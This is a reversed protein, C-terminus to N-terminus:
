NFLLFKGLIGIYYGILWAKDGYKIWLWVRNVKDGAVLKLSSDHSVPFM